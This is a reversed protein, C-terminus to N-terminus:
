ADKKEGVGLRGLFADFQEKFQEKNRHAAGAFTVEDNEIRAWVRRHSTWFTVFLGAFMAFFGVNIWFVGPDFGVQIGTIFLPELGEFKLHFRDGRRADFEPYDQFVWFSSLKPKAGEAAGAPLEERVVQVAPGLEGFQQEFREVTYRVNADGMTFAERPTARVTKSEGSKPDTIVVNAHSLDPREQYTAQYFTKNDWKLPDNVIITKELLTDGTRTDVVRLDSAFRRAAGDKFRDLHFDECVISYGDFPRKLITGDPLRERFFTASGAHEPIDVTGEYGAMRGLIGGFCIVMLALHVVWVGFRTWAGREGFVHTVGDEEVRQVRYGGAVLEKEISEASLEGRPVTLKNRIGRLVKDTLRLTPNKVIIFIRPLREISSALNNLALLLILSTFWWSKFPAYLEFFRYLTIIWPRDAFGREIDVLASEAPNIFTNVAMAIAFLAMLVVMLKVSVFLRWFKEVFDVRKAAVPAREAAPEPLLDATAASDSM